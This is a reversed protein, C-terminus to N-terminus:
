KNITNHTESHVHQATNFVCGCERCINRLTDCHRVIQCNNHIGCQTYTYYYKGDCGYDIMIGGCFPCSSSSNAIYENEEVQNEHAYVTVGSLLMVIAMIVALVAKKM